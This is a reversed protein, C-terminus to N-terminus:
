ASTMVHLIRNWWLEAAPTICQSPIDTDCWQWRWIHLSAWIVMCHAHFALVLRVYLPEPHMLVSCAVINSACSPTYLMIMRAWSDNLSTIWSPISQSEARKRPHCSVLIVISWVWRQVGFKTAHIQRICRIDRLAWEFHVAMRLHKM